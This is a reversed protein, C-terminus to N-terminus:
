EAYAVRSRPLDLRFAVGSGDRWAGRALAIASFASFFQTRRGLCTSLLSASYLSSIFPLQPLTPRHLCAPGPARPRPAFAASIVGPVVVAQGGADFACRLGGVIRQVTRLM